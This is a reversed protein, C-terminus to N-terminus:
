PEGPLLSFRPLTRFPVRFKLNAGVAGAESKTQSEWVGQLSFRRTMQYELGVDQRRESGLGTGVVASLREALEKAISLRPESAGSVRSFTPEIEIRDVPLFTHLRKEVTAADPGATLALVETLEIGAGQSRFLM